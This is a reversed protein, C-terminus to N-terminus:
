PTVTAFVIAGPRRVVPLPRTELKVWVGSPDEEEWVKRFIFDNMSQDSGVGGPAKLDVVPAYPCDFVDDTAVKAILVFANDPIFSVTDGEPDVFTANYEEITTDALLEVKGKEAISAGKQYGLLKLVTDNKLLANMAANGCVAEFGIVTASVDKEIQAKWKRIDEVPNSTTSTWDVTPLHDSPMNYDVLVTSMDSDYIKGRLARSAWFELTTEIKAMVSNQLEREFKQRFTERAKNAGFQSAIAAMRNFEAAAFFTKPAIRPAIVTISKRNGKDVIQAPEYISLNKLLGSSGEYIDFVIKDSEVFSLVPRFYRDFLKLNKPQVNLITKRLAAIFFTNDMTVPM